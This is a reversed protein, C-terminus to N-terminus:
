VLAPSETRHFLAWAVSSNLASFFSEGMGVPKSYPVVMPQSSVPRARRSLRMRLDAIIVWIPAEGEFCNTTGVHSGTVM